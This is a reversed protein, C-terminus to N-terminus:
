RELRVIEHKLVLIYNYGGLGEMDEGNSREM